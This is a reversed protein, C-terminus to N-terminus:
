LTFCVPFAYLLCQLRFSARELAVADEHEDNTVRGPESMARIRSLDGLLRFATV